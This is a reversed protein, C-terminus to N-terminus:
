DLDGIYKKFAKTDPDEEKVVEKRKVVPKESRMMKIRGERKRDKSMREKLKATEKELKEKKKKDEEIKRELKFESKCFNEHRRIDEAANPFETM